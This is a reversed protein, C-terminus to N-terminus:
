AKITFSSAYAQPNKGDWVVGDMLKTSRMSDRPVNVKAMGAADRYLDVQNIQKAVALYDVDAKLLGWRKHQTLFWMGDSLYPFNV